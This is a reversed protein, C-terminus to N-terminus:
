IVLAIIFIIREFITVELLFLSFTMMDLLFLCLAVIVFNIVWLDWHNILHKKSAKLNCIMILYIRRNHWLKLIKHYTKTKIKIYIIIIIM